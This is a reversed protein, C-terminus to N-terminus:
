AQDERRRKANPQGGVMSNSDVTITDSVHGYLSTATVNTKATIGAEFNAILTPTFISTGM